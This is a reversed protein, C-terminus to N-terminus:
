LPVVMKLLHEWGINARDANLNGTSCVNTNEKCEKMIRNLQAKGEQLVTAAALQGKDNACEMGTEVLM